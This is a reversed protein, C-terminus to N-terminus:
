NKKPKKHNASNMLENMMQSTGKQPEASKFDNESIGELRKYNRINKISSQAGNVGNKKLNYRGSTGHNSTTQVEFNDKTVIM